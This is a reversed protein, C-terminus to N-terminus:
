IPNAMMQTLPSPHCACSRVVVISLSCCRDEDPHSSTLTPASARPRRSVSSMATEGRSGDGDGIRAHKLIGM